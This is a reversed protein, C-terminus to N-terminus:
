PSPQPKIASECEESLFLWVPNKAFSLKEGLKLRDELISRAETLLSFMENRFATEGATSNQDVHFRKALIRYQGVLIERDTKTKDALDKTLRLRREPSMAKFATITSTYTQPQTFDLLLPQQETEQEKQRAQQKLREIESLFPDRSPRFLGAMSREFNNVLCTFVALSVLVGCIGSDSLSYAGYGFMAATFLITAKNVAHAVTRLSAVKRTSNNHRALELGDVLQQIYANALNALDQDNPPRESQLLNKIGMIFQANASRMDLEHGNIQISYPLGDSSRLYVATLREEGASTLVVEHVAGDAESVELHATPALANQVLLLFDGAKIAGTDAATPFPQFFLLSSLFLSWFRVM